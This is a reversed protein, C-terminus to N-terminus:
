GGSVRDIQFCREVKETLQRSQEFGVSNCWNEVCVRFGLLDQEVVRLAQEFEGGAVEIKFADEISEELGGDSWIRVRDGVREIWPSPDHGLWPTHGTRVFNQWDRWGELGCCCSPSITQDGSIAQIGGALALGDSMLIEQFIRDRSGSRDIQNYSVLQAFFAGIEAEAMEASLRIWRSEGLDAVSWPCASEADFGYFEIVAHLQFSSSM